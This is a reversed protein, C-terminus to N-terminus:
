TAAPVVLVACPAHHLVKTSVSGHLARKVAGEGRSGVVILDAGYREAADLLADTPDEIIEHYEATVGERECIRRAGALRREADMDARLLERYEAPLDTAIDRLDGAALPQYATVVHVQADDIKAITAAARLAHEADSSGDTGVVITTFM